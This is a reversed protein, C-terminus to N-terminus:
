RRLQGKFYNLLQFIYEVKKIFTELLKSNFMKIKDM